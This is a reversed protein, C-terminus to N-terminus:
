STTVEAGGDWIGIRLVIFEAPYTPVLGVEIYLRGLARTSEPNLVEDIRVYFAEEPKAGFLAGDRWAQTLFDGISRKLKHWLAQDNPEFVAWRIGAEISQELYIFLRRINVYQWNRDLDGATTRAGWVVPQSQGPFVRLVNVGMLNLPGQESDSLVQEVGLAGIINTNAPAKHVGRTNDTRAYVGLIHGSAPWIANKGTATDRVVIRPYYLAAYGKASRVQGFQNEVGTIDLGPACDLVAFRDQLQECHDKVAQLIGPDSAGPVAVLAVDRLRALHALYDNTNNTLDTWATDLDDAQGGATTQAEARPRDDGAAATGAPVALELTVNTSTVATGWYGPSRADMSLLTFAEPTTAGLPQVSLDFDATTLTPADAQTSLAIAAPLGPADLQVTDGGAGAVRLLVTTAPNTSTISLLSGAPIVSSLSMGSPTHLRLRRSGLPLDATRIAGTAFAGGLPTALTLVTGAVGVITGAQNTVVIADGAAFGAIAAPADLTLQTRDASIVTVNATAVRVQLTFTGTVTGTTATGTLAAQLAIQNPQTITAITASQAPGQGLAVTVSDSVAFDALGGSVTLTKRDASLATVPLTMAKTVAADSRSSDAVTISIDNGAPGEAAATAVFVNGSGRARLTATGSSATSARLVYCTTGGNLFFGYVGHALWANPDALFGGFTQTFKDWSTILTPTNRPGQEALGIFAATSTGVGEIPAGPAFEDVYVGPYSVQVAM